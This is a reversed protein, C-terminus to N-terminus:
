IFRYHPVWPSGPTKPPLPGLLLLDYFFIPHFIPIKENKEIPAANSSVKFGKLVM